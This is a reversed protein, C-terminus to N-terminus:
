SWLAPVDVGMLGVHVSCVWPAVGTQVFVYYISWVCVLPAMGVQVCMYM